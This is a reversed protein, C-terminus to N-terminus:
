RKGPEMERLFTEVVLPDFYFGAQAQIYALSKEKSWAKRYPRDSTLADYVDVVSFIRAVLPIQEGRLGRPYGSGDWKEHHCYPIDLAPHLYKIPSLMDYASQPHKRMHVWDEESLPGTKRLIEDPVGLKGIDHLLAGRRIHIMQEPTSGMIEAIRMTIETVRQSHGETERDRLDMAQSWGEITEDYAMMLEYNSSQLNEFMQSNDVAIAVQSALTALFELWEGDPNFTSRHFTELVGKVQGKILLPAAYHALFGEEPIQQVRACPML